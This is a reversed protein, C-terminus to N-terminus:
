LQEVELIVTGGAIKANQHGHNHDHNPDCENAFDEFNQHVFLVTGLIDKEDFTGISWLDTKLTFTGNGNEDIDINGVDGAFTKAWVEGLSMERCFSSSLIGQNWHRGPQTFTGEHLHMAHAGNPDMGSLEVLITTVGDQYEFTATGVSEGATYTTGDETIATFIGATARTIPGPTTDDDGCGVLLLISFIIALTRM